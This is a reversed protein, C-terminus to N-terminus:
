QDATEQRCYNDRKLATMQPSDKFEPNRFKAELFQLRQEIVFWIEIEQVM